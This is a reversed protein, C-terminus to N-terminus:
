FHQASRPGGELRRTYLLQLLTMDVDGSKPVVYPMSARLTSFM